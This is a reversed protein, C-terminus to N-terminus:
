RHLDPLELDPIHGWAIRMPASGHDSSAPRVAAYGFRRNIRDIAKDLWEDKEERQFLPSPAFSTPTLNVLTVKVTLYTAEPATAWQRDFAGLLVRTSSTPPLVTRGAWEGTPLLRGKCILESTRYGESRLRQAAKTLLRVLVARASKRNRKKPPLVHEHGLTRRVTRQDSLDIGRILQWWRRGLVSGFVEAMQSETLEYMQETTAIGAAGLRASIGKNIGPWDTLTMDFFCRPIMSSEILNLGNPKSQDSAVKSLLRNPAIGVSCTLAESFSHRVVRKIKTGLEAAAIPDKEAGML